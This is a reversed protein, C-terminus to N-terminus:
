CRSRRLGGRSPSRGRSGQSGKTGPYTQARSSARGGSTKPHGVPSAGVFVAKHERLEPKGAVLMPRNDV